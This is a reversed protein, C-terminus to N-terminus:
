GYSASRICNLCLCFPVCEVFWSPVFVEGTAVFVGNLTVCVQDKLGCPFGTKHLAVLGRNTVQVFGCGPAYLGFPQSAQLESPLFQAMFCVHVFRNLLIVHVFAIFPSHSSFFIHLCVLGFGFGFGFGFCNCVCM